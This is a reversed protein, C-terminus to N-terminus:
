EKALKAIKEELAEVLKPFGEREIVAGYDARRVTIESIKGDLTIDIIRWGTGSKRLRYDFKVDDDSPQVFETKVLITSRAAPEEGLTEFHQGEYSKFNAAYNSASFRRSLATFSTREEPSLSKWAKGVSIRAMFPLDFSEDLQAVIREYRGEFGPGCAGKMCDLLVAHLSEVVARPDPSADATATRASDSARTGISIMSVSLAALLTLLRVLPM